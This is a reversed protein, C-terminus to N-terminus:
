FRPKIILSEHFEPERMPPIALLMFSAFRDDVLIAPGHVGVTYGAPPLGEIPNPIPNLLEAQLLEDLTESSMVIFQPAVKCLSIADTIFGLKQAATLPTSDSGDFLDLQEKSM